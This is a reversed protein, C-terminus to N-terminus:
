SFLLMGPATLVSELLSMMVCLANGKSFQKIFPRINVKETKM